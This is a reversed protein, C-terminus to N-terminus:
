ESLIKAIDKIDNWEINATLSIRIRSSGEPVTPPRIPFLLFGKQMLIESKDLTERMGGLIAPVIQSAGSTKIGNENLSNRLHDALIGLKKKRDSFSLIRKMNYLNWNVIVPPQSTSYILSRMKNILFEKLTQGTVAYAGQSAFSKGFTGVIIDIDKVVNERECVGLGIEGFVGVAHAEDVFLLTNYRKKLDTLKKVDAIDGDMSFVSESIIIVKDYKNRKEELIDQLQEYNAHGFPICEARSLRTGDIISAHNLADSLILDNRGTLAPIIGINAHYGSNFALCSKAYKEYDRDSIFTSNYFDAITNELESYLSFDGTLLRSSASGLGFSDIINNENLGKYFNRHAEKDAGLGLYDNSSLNLYKKNNYLVYKGNKSHITKLFRYHNNKKLDELETQYSSYTNDSM